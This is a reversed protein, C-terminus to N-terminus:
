NAKVETIHHLEIDKAGGEYMDMITRSAEFEFQEQDDYDVDLTIHDNVPILAFYDAEYKAM